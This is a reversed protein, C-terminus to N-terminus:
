LVTRYFLIYAIHWDAGGHTAGALKKVDEEGVSYVKTDDYCWWTDKEKVWAVYHGSDASRGKHSLVAYLEYLGSKNEYPVPKLAEDVEDVEMKEETNGGLQRDKELKKDERERIKDKVVKLKEKLEDTCLQSIDLLFPFEVTRTIKAKINADPKWFFRILQVNLYYPLKSIKKVVQYQADKQLVTSHKTIQETWKDQIGEVLFATQNGIHCEIKIFDEKKTMRDDTNDVCTYQSTTEGTFGKQVFNDPLSQQLVRILTSLAEEADQQMYFGQSQQAFQTFSTRFLNVFTSPTVTKPSRNLESFLNKLGLAVNHTNQDSSNSRSAPYAVISSNLEPNAKLCQLSANLYCTNELNTLGPPLAPELLTTKQQDTLDEVFITKPPEKPLEGATGVLMFSSGAKLGLTSLDADDDLKGGKLSKIGMLKQREPPVGTLTWIQSKLVGGPLSLDTDIDFQKKQWKMVIKITSM